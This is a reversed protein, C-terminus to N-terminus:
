RCMGQILPLLRHHSLSVMSEEQGVQGLGIHLSLSMHKPKNTQQKPKKKGLHSIIHNKKKAHGQIKKQFEHDVENLPDVNEWHSIIHLDLYRM